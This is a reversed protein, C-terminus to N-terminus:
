EGSDQNMELYKAKREAKEAAEQEAEQELEFPSKYEPLDVILVRARDYAYLSVLPEGMIMLSDNKNFRSRDAAVAGELVMLIIRRSPHTEFILKEGKGIRAMSVVADICLRLSNDEGSGSALTLLSTRGGKISFSMRDKSEAPVPEDGPRFGMSIFRSVGYEGSNRFSYDDNGPRLVLCRNRGLHDPESDGQRVELSGERGVLLIETEENEPFLEGGPTVTTEEIAVLDGFPKVYGGYYPLFSLMECLKGKRRPRQASKLIKFM